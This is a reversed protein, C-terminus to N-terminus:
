EGARHSDEGGDILRAFSDGINERRENPLSGFTADGLGLLWLGERGQM